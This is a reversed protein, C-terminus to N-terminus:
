KCEFGEFITAKAENVTLEGGNPFNGTIFEDGMEEKIQDLNIKDYDVTISIFFEKENTKKVEFKYGDLKEYVNGADILEEVAKNIEEESVNKDLIKFQSKQELTIVKDDEYEITGTDTEESYTDKTTKTCVIKSVEKKTNEEKNREKGCGTLSSVIIVGFLIYCICRKM